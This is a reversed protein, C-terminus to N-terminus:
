RFTFLRIDRYHTSLYNRLEAAYGVQLLEAPIVMALRGAPRLLMTSAVLFPVWANTLRSPHLGESRMLEFAPDRIQDTFSQYRIFPPNGLVVDVLEGRALAARCSRFFDGIQISLGSHGAAELRLRAKRAEGCDLEVGRILRAIEQGSAGLARFRDVA